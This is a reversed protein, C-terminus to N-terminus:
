VSYTLKTPKCIYGLEETSKVISCLTCSFIDFHKLTTYSPMWLFMGSKIVRYADGHM